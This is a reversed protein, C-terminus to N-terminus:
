IIQFFDSKISKLCLILHTAGLEDISREFADCDDHEVCKIQDDNFLSSNHKFGTSLLVGLIDAHLSLVRHLATYLQYNTTHVIVQGIEPIKMNQTVTQLITRTPSSKFLERYFEQWYYLDPDPCHVLIIFLGFGQRLIEDTIPKEKIIDPLSLRHKILSVIEDQKGSLLM